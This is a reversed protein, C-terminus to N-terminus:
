PSKAAGPHRDMNVRHWWRVMYNIKCKKATCRLKGTKSKVAYICKECKQEKKSTEVGMLDEVTLTPTFGFLSLQTDVASQINKDDVPSVLEGLMPAIIAPPKQTTCHYCVGALADACDKSNHVFVGASLAFNHWEAVELDYM